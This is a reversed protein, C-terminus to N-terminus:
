VEGGHDEESGRKSKVYSYKMTDCKRKQRSVKKM